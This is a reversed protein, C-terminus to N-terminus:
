KAKAGKVEFDCFYGDASFRHTVRSLFFEDSSKDTLSKIKLYRGPILEPIGICHGRGQVFNMAIGNLRAKALRTCEDATVAFESGEKLVAKKLASFHEAASKGSGGTTVKDAHGEVPKNNKDLGWISVKGVQGHTSFRKQFTLLGRGMELETVPSSADWLSDFILEGDVCMLAMGYREALVRLFTFDDMGEEKLIPTEFDKLGAGVTVKKAFGASVSKALIEKVAAATGKEGGYYDDKCSMLYGLGDVGQVILRPASGGVYDMSYEDVYGYFLQEKKVYGGKVELKAGVKLNKLVTKEWTGTNYDYLSNVAFMCSGASGDASLDVELRSIPISTSDLTVGGLKIEIAPGLFGGYKQELATIQYSGKDL